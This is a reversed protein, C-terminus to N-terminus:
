QRISSLIAFIEEDRCAAPVPPFSYKTPGFRRGGYRKGSAQRRGNPIANKRKEGRCSTWTITM